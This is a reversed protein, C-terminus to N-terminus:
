SLVSDASVGPPLGDTNRTMNVLPVTRREGRQQQLWVVLRCRVCVAGERLTTTVLQTLLLVNDLTDRVM